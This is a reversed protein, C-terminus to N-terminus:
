SVASCVLRRQACPMQVGSALLTGRYWQLRCSSAGHAKPSTVQWHLCPRLAQGVRSLEKTPRGTPWVVATTSETCRCGLGNHYLCRCQVPCKGLCCHKATYVSCCCRGAKHQGAWGWPRPSAPQPPGAGGHDTGAPLVQAAHLARCVICMDTCLRFTLCDQQPVDVVCGPHRVGLVSGYM